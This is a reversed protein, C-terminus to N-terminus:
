RGGTSWRLTIIASVSGSTDALIILRVWSSNIESPMQRDAGVFCVVTTFGPIENVDCRMRKGCRRDIVRWHRLIETNPALVHVLTGPGGVSTLVLAVVDRAAVPARASDAVQQQVSVATLTLRCRARVRQLNSGSVAVSM